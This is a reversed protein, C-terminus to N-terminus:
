KGLPRKARGLAAPRPTSNWSATPRLGAVGPRNLLYNPPVASRIASLPMGASGNLSAIWALHERPTAADWGAPTAMAGAFCRRTRVRTIFTLAITPAPTASPVTANVRAGALGAATFNERTGSSSRLKKLFQRLRCYCESQTESLMDGHRPLEFQM